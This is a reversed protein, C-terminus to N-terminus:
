TPAGSTGGVSLLGENTISGDVETSTITITGGSQGLTTTGAGVFTATNSGSLAITPSTTGAVTLTQNGTNTGSQNSLTTFEAATMLGANTGTAAPLTVSTGTSSNVDATTGTITGLSLDSGVLALSAIGTTITATSALAVKVDWLSADSACYIQTGVPVNVGFATVKNAVRFQASPTLQSFGISSILFLTLILLYNRM